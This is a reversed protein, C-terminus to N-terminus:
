NRGLVRSAEKGLSSKDELNGRWKVKMVELAELSLDVGGNNQVCPNAL